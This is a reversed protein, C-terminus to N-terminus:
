GFTLTDVQVKPNLMTSVKDTPPRGKQKLCQKMHGYQHAVM